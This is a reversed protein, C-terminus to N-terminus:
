WTRTAVSLALTRAQSLPPQEPSSRTSLNDVQDSRRDGGHATEPHLKLYIVKPWNHPKSPGTLRRCNREACTRMSLPRFPRAIQGDRRCKSAARLATDINRLDAEWRPWGQLGERATVSCSARRAGSIRREDRLLGAFVIGDPGFEKLLKQCGLSLPVPGEPEETKAPGTSAPPPPPPPVEIM